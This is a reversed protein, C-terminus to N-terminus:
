FPLEDSKNKCFFAEDVIFDIKYNNEKSTGGEIHGSVAVFDGKKHYKALFRALGGFATMSPFATNDKHNIAITFFAYDKGNASTRVEIDKTLRGIFKFDNM